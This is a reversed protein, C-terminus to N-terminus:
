QAGIKAALYKADRSIGRLYASAPSRGFRVGLLFLNPTRTSECSSLMPTGGKDLGVLDGLHEAAYRFGTAFVVLDPRMSSGDIFTVEDGRYARVAPKRGISGRRVARAVSLGTMPERFKQALSGLLHAPLHEPIWVFYHIDIGLIRHPVALLRGRISISAKAEPKRVDLWRELVETASPGRGIVLIERPSLLDVTRVDLSHKWTFSCAAPDFDSPLMPRSIIGTANVVHSGEEIQEMGNSDQYGVAFAGRNAKVSKVTARTILRIERRRQYEELGRVLQAFSLNRSGDALGEMGPLRSLRTPSLLIMEPDVRRIASSALAGQELLVYDINRASLTHACALGAPGGGIIIVRKSM